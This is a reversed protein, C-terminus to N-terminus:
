TSPEVSILDGGAQVVRGGLHLLGGLRGVVRVLEAWRDRGVPESYWPDIPSAARYPGRHLTGVLAGVAQPDIGPDRDLLTVWGYVGVLTEAVEALLPSGDMRRM